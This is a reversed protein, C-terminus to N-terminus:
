QSYAELCRKLLDKSSNDKSLNKYM